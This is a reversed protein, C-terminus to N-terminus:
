TVKESSVQILREVHYDIPDGLGFNTWVPTYSDLFTVQVYTSQYSGSSCTTSSITEATGCRYVKVVQIHDADNPINLTNALVAQITTTETASGSAAALVIQEADAAGAQLEHQRAVMRSVDYGGLALCALVPAVIATEVVATGRVDRRLRLVAEIMARRFKM